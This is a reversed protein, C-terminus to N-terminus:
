RRLALFRLAQFGFALLGLPLVRLALFDLVLFEPFGQPYPIVQPRPAVPAGSPRGVLPDDLKQAGSGLGVERLEPRM